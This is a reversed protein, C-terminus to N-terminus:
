VTSGKPIGWGRYEDDEIVAHPIALPVVPQWRLVEKMVCEVYNLSGRDSMEPLREHGIVSDVEAQAKLFASRNLVMALIFVLATAASTDSGAGFLTGTVWKIRDEQEEYGRGLDIKSNLEALLSKLVSHPATGEAIQQKTYDFPTDVMKEREKRWEKVTNKWGTGPVWDPIYRIWPMVNVFFNGPVAAENLHDLAKEVVRVLPDHASTVEYGYVASLLTSGSM